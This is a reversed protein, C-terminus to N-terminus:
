ASSREGCLPPVDNHAVGVVAVVEAREGREDCLKAVAIVDHHSIAKEAADPGAGHGPFVAVDAIGYETGDSAKPGRIWSVISRWTIGANVNMSPRWVIGNLGEACHTQPDPPNGKGIFNSTMAM